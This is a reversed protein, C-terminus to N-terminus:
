RDVTPDQIAAWFRQKAQKYARTDTGYRAAWRTKLRGYALARAPDRRLSDRLSLHRNWLPALHGVVLLEFPIEGPRSLLSWPESGPPARDQVVYGLGTLLRAVASVNTGSAVGVLIDIEHRGWLGPISSSGVHEIGAARSGLVARIQRQEAAFILPWRPDYRHLV